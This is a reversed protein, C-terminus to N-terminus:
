SGTWIMKSKGFFKLLLNFIWKRFLSVGVLFGILPLLLLGLFAFSLNNPPLKEPVRFIHSIEAKPGYKLYPNVALSPPRTAKEPAEPLDLDIRGIAQLFSNEQFLSFLFKSLEHFPLFLKFVQPLTMSVMIADGVTLQLDYSGSLYYLKDVLGLFDQLIFYQILLFNRWQYDLVLSPHFSCREKWLTWFLVVCAHWIM